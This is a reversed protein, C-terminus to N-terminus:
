GNGLALAVAQELSLGQGSGWARKFAMDGLESRLTAVFNENEQCTAPTFVVGLERRIRESASELEAALNGNGLCYCAVALADLSYALGKLDGLQQRVSISERLFDVSRVYDELDNHLEGLGYLAHAMSRLNGIGRAIVIAESYLSIATEFHGLRRTALALNNMTATMRLKDGNARRFDLVQNLLTATQLYDGQMGALMALGEMSEYLGIEDGLAKSIAMGEAEFGRAREFDGQSSASDSAYRLLDARLLTPSSDLALIQALWRRKETFYGRVTWFIHLAWGLEMALSARGPSTIAWALAARLNNHEREMQALWTPQDGGQILHPRATKAFDLYYACHWELARELRGEAALRDRAYDRLTELMSYRPQGDATMEYRVLSKGVLAQLRSVVTGTPVNNELSMDLMQAWASSIADSSCGDSFIGLLSFLRRDDEELLEYSWAMAGRLSQQRPTLDCPGHDLIALCDALQVLLQSPSLWRVQAAAIEIALPLGDLRACIHAVDSVNESTLRFDSKAASAREEFFQVSSCCRYGAVSDNAPLRQLDLLELPPVPFDYEGYVHLVERSSVLVKIQPAARLLEPILPAAPMLHEFNDLVLLLRKDCLFNALARVAGAATEKLGLAQAIAPAVAEPDAIPALAVFHAGDRFSHALKQAVALSLRTKGTGPPGSLTLLRVAPRRLLAALAATEARRDIMRTMPAPLHSVVTSVSPLVQEIPLDASEGRAFTVFAPNQGGPVRLERALLNALAVSPRLDDGEIRRLTSVSCAVRRALAERTLNYSKRRRSVWEGFSVSQEDM